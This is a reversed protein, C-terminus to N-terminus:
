ICISTTFEQQYADSHTSSINPLVCKLKINRSECLAFFIRIYIYIEEAREMLNEM